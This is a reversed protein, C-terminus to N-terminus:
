GASSAVVHVCGHGAGPEFRAERTADDAGDAIGQVLAVNANCILETHAAALRHFPCNALMWGGAGDDHPQYGVHQLAGLMSEESAGIAQGTTTAVQSLSGRVPDGTADSQEIAAALLGGILDYQRDPLSVSLEVDARVYLKAPRGSGPGTKGSLRKFEAVVLLGDDVLRELHFAATQRAIGIAAAAEDRGVPASSAAVFDYLSRRLPDAVSAVAVM